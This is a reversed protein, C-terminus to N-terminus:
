EILVLHSGALGFGAIEAATLVRGLNDELIDRNVQGITGVTVDVPDTAAALDAASGSPAVKVAEITCGFVAEGAGVTTGDKALPFGSPIYGHADVVGAALASPTVRVSAPHDVPGVFVSSYISDGTSVRRQLIPSM